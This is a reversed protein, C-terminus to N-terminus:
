DISVKEDKDEESLVPQPLTDLIASLLHQSPAVYPEVEPGLEKVYYAAVEAMAPDASAWSGGGEAAWVEEGDSCRLLQARVAAEVGAGKRRVDPKLWLVGELGEGQACQAKLDLAPGAVARNEKVIFDRKLNVYKRALQSWLEGVAAKDEPFPQTVVVLRKVRHRDVTDYDSRLRKVKVTACGVAFAALVSAAVTRSGPALRV